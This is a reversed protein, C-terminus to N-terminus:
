ASIQRIASLNRETSGSSWRKDYANWIANYAASGAKNQQIIAGKITAYGKPNGVINDNCDFIFFNSM